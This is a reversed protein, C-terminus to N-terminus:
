RNEAPGAKEEAQRRCEITYGNIFIAFIAPDIHADEAIKAIQEDNLHNANEKERPTMIAVAKRLQRLEEKSPAELMALESSGEIDEFQNRVRQGFENDVFTAVKELFEQLTIKPNTKTNTEKAADRRM